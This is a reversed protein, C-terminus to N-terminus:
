GRWRLLQESAAHVQLSPACGLQCDASRTMIGRLQSDDSQECACTGAVMAVAEQDPTVNADLLRCGFASGCDIEIACNTGDAASVSRM